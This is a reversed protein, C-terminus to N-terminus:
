FIRKLIYYHKKGKQIIAYQNHLFPIKNALFASDLIKTGNIKLAGQNIFENIVRNSECIKNKILLNKFTSHPDHVEITPHLKVLKQWEQTNLDQWGQTFFINAIKCADNYQEASHVLEIVAKALAHQVLRQDKSAKAKQELAAITKAPIMSFLLLLKASIHDPQNILFQYMEYPSTLDQDLWITGSATKGFKTKDDKLLLHTTIGYAPANTTNAKHKIYEVGSVINGWQDSGGLQVHCNYNSFLYYFDYGQMINYTFESFSMGRAIRTKIAEKTLLYSLNFKKGVDRLFPILKMQTWWDSNYIVTAEPVIKRVQANINASNHKITEVDLLSREQNKGSPDGVQATADGIVIIAQYGLTIMWKLAMLQVLNGMHLSAATPDIGCYVIKDKNSLKTINLASTCDKLFGRETLIDIINLTIVM